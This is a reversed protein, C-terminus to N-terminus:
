QNKDQSYGSCGPTQNCKAAAWTAFASSTHYEGCLHKWAALNYGSPFIKSLLMGHLGQDGDIDGNLGAFVWDIMGPELGNRELFDCLM